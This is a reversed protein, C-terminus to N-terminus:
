PERAPESDTPAAEAAAHSDFVVDAADREAYAADGNGGTGSREPVQMREIERALAAYDEAGNSSGAYEFITQGFSPCEALKVNRRISSKFVRAGYWAEHPEAASLFGEVDSRVEQGLRTYHEFMCLIVGSVRLDANVSDRVASVTQLLKGLGQLALFHAQLPIMVERVAALANVTLLGLSPPCDIIAYDFADAWPELAAVLRTDRDDHQALELEAAVLDLHTPILAVNKDTYRMAEAASAERTLVHYISPEGDELEVGLHLSAHAQPDLDILLVRHQERALAAAVNVSSTTKGVGGKQNMM